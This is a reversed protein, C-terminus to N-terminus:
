FPRVSFAVTTIRSPVGLVGPQDNPLECISEGTLLNTVSLWGVAAAAGGGGRRM